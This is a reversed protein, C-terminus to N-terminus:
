GDLKKQFEVLLEFPQFGMHENIDVMPGNSEANCTFVVTCGPHARQAVRLNRAKVALGLRHGRHEKAVITAWQQMRTPEGASIALTTVAVASGTDDIAVTDYRTLGAAANRAVHQRLVEPTIQEAEMEIDGTPADLALQNVVHCMSPLLADPVVGSFTEIRYAGHHPGADAIWADVVDDAVPLELRRCVETSAVAFGHREAFRRYPHDERRDFGYTADSLIVCRGDVRARDVVYRVMAGGIGRGRQDPAVFVGTYAKTVNDLVPYFAFAAGVMSGRGSDDDFAGFPMAIQDDSPMTFDAIMDPEPWVPRDPNDVLCAARYITYFDRPEGNALDIPRIHMRRAYADSGVRLWQKEASVAVIERGCPAAHVLDDVEHTQPLDGVLPGTGEGQPHALPEPDGRRQQSGAVTM